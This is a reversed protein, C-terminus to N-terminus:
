RKKEKEIFEKEEDENEPHIHDQVIWELPSLPKFSCKQSPVSCKEWCFICDAPLEGDIFRVMKQDWDARPCCDPRGNFPILMNGYRIIPVSIPAM